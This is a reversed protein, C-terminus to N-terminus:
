FQNSGATLIQLLADTGKIESANLVNLMPEITQLNGSFYTQQKSKHHRVIHNLLNLIGSNPKEELELYLILCEVEDCLKKLQNILEPGSDNDFDIYTSEPLVNSLQKQVSTSFGLESWSANRFHLFGTNKM